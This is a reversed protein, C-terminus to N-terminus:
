FSAGCRKCVRSKGEPGSQHGVRTPENCSPCVVAVNSVHVPMEKTVIGGTMGGRTGQAPRVREHRKVQNVGEVMVTQREPYVNVVRGQKGRDKGSLVKVTDDKRIAAAM